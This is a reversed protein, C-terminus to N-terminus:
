PTLTKLLNLIRPKSRYKTCEIGGEYDHGLEDLQMQMLKWADKLPIDYWYRASWFTTLASRNMSPFMAILKSWMHDAFPHDHIVRINRRKM